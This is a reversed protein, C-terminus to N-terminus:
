RFFDWYQTQFTLILYLICQINNKKLVKADAFM